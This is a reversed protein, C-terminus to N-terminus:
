AREDDDEEAAGGIAEREDRRDRVVVIVLDTRAERYLFLVREPEVAEEAQMGIEAREFGRPLLAIERDDVAGTALAVRARVELRLIQHFVAADGGAAPETAKEPRVSGM